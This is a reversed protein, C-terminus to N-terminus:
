VYEQDKLKKYSDSFKGNKQDIKIANLECYANYFNNKLEEVSHLDHIVFYMDILRRSRDLHLEFGIIKCNDPVSKKPLQWYEDKFFVKTSKDSLTIKISDFTYFLHGSEDSDEEGSELEYDNSLLIDKVKDKTNLKEM